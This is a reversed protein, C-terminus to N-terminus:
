NPMLGTRPRFDVIFNYHLHINGDDEVLGKPPNLFPAAGQFADIATMDLPQDGSSHHIFGKLYAGEGNLVIEIQYTREYASLTALAGPTLGDIYRRILEVWRYRVQENVRSFFTYYTFQDTNLATFSGEKVGPIYEAVSSGGIVLNRGLGEQQGGMGGMNRPKPKLGEFSSHVDEESSEKNKPGPKGNGAQQKIGQSSPPQLTPTPLANLDSNQTRGTNHAKTEEKVRKTVKSLYKAKKKLDEILDKAKVDTDTAFAQPTKGDLITIETKDPRASDDPKPLFLALLVIAVHIVISLILGQFSKDEEQM